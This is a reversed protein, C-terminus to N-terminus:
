DRGLTAPLGDPLEAPSGRQAGSTAEGRLRDRLDAPNLPVSFLWGQGHSCGLQTLIDREEAREVGEAVVMIRRSRAIELIARVVERTHESELCSIFTRDLKLIDVPLDALYGWSAYGTGFDDIAIRVGLRHLEELIGRQDSSALVSETLELVISDPRLGYREITEAFRLAFSSQELQRVSVNVHMDLNQG